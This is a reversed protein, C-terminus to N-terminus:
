HPAPCCMVNREVDGCAALTSLQMKNIRHITERLNRKPVGHFQLGQRTTIRLTGSSLEDCMDLQALLQQSNLKGGPLKVRVMFIIEKASKQGERKTRAERNDQQYTGHFKLLQTSPKSFFPNEDILEKAIDGRLYNSALKVAEAASPKQDDPSHNESM